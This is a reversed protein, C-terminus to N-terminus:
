CHAKGPESDEGPAVCGSTKGDRTSPPFEAEESQDIGFAAECKRMKSEDQALDSFTSRVLIENVRVNTIVSDHAKLSRLLSELAPELEPAAAIEGPTVTSKRSLNCLWSTTSSTSLYCALLRLPFSVACTIELWRALSFCAVRPFKGSENEKVKLPLCIQVQAIISLIGRPM